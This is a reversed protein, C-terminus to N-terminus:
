NSFIGYGKRPETKDHLTNQNAQNFTGFDIWNNWKLFLGAIAIGTGYIIKRPDQIYTKFFFILKM